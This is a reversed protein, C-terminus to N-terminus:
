WLKDADFGYVQVVDLLPSRAIDRATVLPGGNSDLDYGANHFAQWVLHSCHTVKAKGGDKCQDKKSFFGVFVSYPVDLLTKTAGQAIAARTGEDADKLRLVMFAGAERFWEDGGLDIQSNVGLTISELLSGTPGDTVIAAHGNRWGYTHCANTVLIDGDELPVIPALVPKETAPDYLHDYQTTVAAPDDHRVEGEFFFAEQFLPLEERPVSLVGAKTLGTQHYLVSYDEETWEEKQLLESLDIKECSPLTRGFPEAIGDATLLGAAILAVFGFLGAFVALIVVLAKKLGHM